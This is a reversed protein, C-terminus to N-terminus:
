TACVRGSSVILHQDPMYRSWHSTIRSSSRRTNVVDPRHGVVFQGVSPEGALLERVADGVVLMKPDCPHQHPPMTYGIGLLMQDDSGTARALRMTHRLLEILRERSAPCAGDAIEDLVSPRPSEAAAKM